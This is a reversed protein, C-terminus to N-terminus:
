AASPTADRAYLRVANSRSWDKSPRWGRLARVRRFGLEHLVSEERPNAYVVLLRRPRREQSAVLREMVTRFVDGTFPNNLYVVTVDDPIPFELADGAVLEVDRCRLRDRNRDVNRQAVENLAASLEVGIVRKFPYWAAAQYVVRGMGSGYDIFVDNPGVDGPRLIRRLQFWGAPAYRTYEDNAYGLEATSIRGETEIGARRELQRNLAGRAAIYAPRITRHFAGGLVRELDTRAIRKM